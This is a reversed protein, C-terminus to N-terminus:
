GRTTLCSRISSTSPRSASPGADNEHLWKALAPNNRLMAKQNAKDALFYNELLALMRDSEQLLAKDPNRALYFEQAWKPMSRFFDDAKDEKGDKMLDVWAEDPGHLQKFQSDSMSPGHSGGSGSGGIYNGDKDYYKGRFLQSDPNLQYYRDRM